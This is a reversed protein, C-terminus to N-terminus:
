MDTCTQRTEGMDTSIAREISYVSVSERTASAKYTEVVNERSLRRQRQELELPSSFSQFSSSRSWRMETGENTMLPRYSADCSTTMEGKKQRM